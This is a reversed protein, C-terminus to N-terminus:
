SIMMGFRCVNICSKYSLIWTARSVRTKRPTSSRQGGRQFNRQCFATHTATLFGAPLLKSKEAHDWVDHWTNERPRSYEVQCGPKSPKTAPYNCEIDDAFHVSHTLIWAAKEPLECSRQNAATADSENVQGADGTAAWWSFVQVNRWWPKSRHM